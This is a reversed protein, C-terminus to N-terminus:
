SRRNKNRNNAGNIKDGMTIIKGIKKGKEWAEVIGTDKNRILKM